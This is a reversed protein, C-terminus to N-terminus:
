QARPVLTVPLQYVQKSAADILYCNAVPANPNRLCVYPLFMGTAEAPLTVAELLISGDDQAHFMPVQDGPGQSWAIGPIVLLALAAALCLAAKFNPNM